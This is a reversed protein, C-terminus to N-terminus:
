LHTREVPSNADLKFRIGTVIIEIPRITGARYDEIRRIEANAVMKPISFERCLKLHRIVCFDAIQEIHGYSHGVYLPFGLAVEHRAKIHLSRWFGLISRSRRRTAPRGIRSRIRM